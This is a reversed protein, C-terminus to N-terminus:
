TTSGQHCHGQSLKEGSMRTSGRVDGESGGGERSAQESGQEGGSAAGLRDTRALDGHLAAGVIPHVRDVM